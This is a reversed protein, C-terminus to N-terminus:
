LWCFVLGCCVSTQFKNRNFLYCDQESPSLSFLSSPSDHKIWSVLLQRVYYYSLHTYNYCKHDPEMNTSQINTSKSQCIWLSHSNSYFLFIVWDIDPVCSMRLYWLYWLIHNLLWTWNVFTMSTYLTIPLESVSRSREAHLNQEDDRVGKHLNRRLDQRIKMTLVKHLYGGIHSRIDLVFYNVLSRHLDTKPLNYGGKFGCWLGLKCRCSWRIQYSRTVTPQLKATFTNIRCHM